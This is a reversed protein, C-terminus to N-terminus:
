KFEKILQEGKANLRVKGVNKTKMKIHQLLSM